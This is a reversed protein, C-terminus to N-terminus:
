QINAYLQGSKYSTDGLFGMIRHASPLSNGSQEWPRSPWWPPQLKARQKRRGRPPLHVKRVPSTPPPSPIPQARGRWTRSDESSITGFSSHGLGSSVKDKLQNDTLSLPTGPRQSCKELRKVLRWGSTFVEEGSGETGWGWQGTIVRKKRQQSLPCWWLLVEVPERWGVQWRTPGEVWPVTKGGSFPPSEGRCGIQAPARPGMEQRGGLPM